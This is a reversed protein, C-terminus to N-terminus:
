CLSCPRIRIRDVFPQRRLLAPNSQETEGTRETKPHPPSQAAAERAMNRVFNNNHIQSTGLQHASRGCHNEILQNAVFLMVLAIHQQYTNGFLGVGVQFSQTRQLKEIFPVPKSHQAVRHIVDLPVSEM